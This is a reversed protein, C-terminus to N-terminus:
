DWDGFLAPTHIHILIHVCFFPLFGWFFCAQFFPVTYVFRLLYVLSGFILVSVSVLSGFICRLAPPMVHCVHSGQILLIPMCGLAFVLCLCSLALFTFIQNTFMRRIGFNISTQYYSYSYARFSHFWQRPQLVLSCSRYSYFFFCSTYSPPSSNHFFPSFILALLVTELKLRRM